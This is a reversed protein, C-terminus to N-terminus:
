KTFIRCESVLFLLKKGELVPAASALVLATNVASPKSQALCPHATSRKFTAITLLYCSCAHPSFTNVAGTAKLAGTGPSM